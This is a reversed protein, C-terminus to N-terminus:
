LSDQCTLCDSYWSDVVSVTANPSTSSVGIYTYCAQTGNITMNYAYNTFLDVNNFVTSPEIYYNTLTNCDQFQYTQGPCVFVTEVL